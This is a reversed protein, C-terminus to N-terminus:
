GTRRGTDTWSPVSTSSSKKARKPAAKSPPRVWIRCCCWMEARTGLLKPNVAPENEFVDLGAGGIARNADHPDARERRDGRRPIYQRYLRRTRLLKLRRASLLHFTAPTHPCNISVIDMRALMQDLSEWYTAELESNSRRRRGAPPQSLPDPARLRPGAAGGGSRDPGHRHHGTAQRRHPPGADLEAGLRQVGQRRGHRAGEM